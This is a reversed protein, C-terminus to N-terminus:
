DFLRAGRRLATASLDAMRAQIAERARLRLLEGLRGAPCRELREGLAHFDHHLGLAEGLSKIQPLQKGAEPQLPALLACQYGYYKVQKRWDHLAASTGASRAARLGRRCDRRSAALWQHLQAADAAIDCGAIYIMVTSLLPEARAAGLADADDAPRLTELTSDLARFESLALRRGRLLRQLTQRAVDADRRASLGRGADRLLTDILRFQRGLPRRLLRLWARLKKISKRTEHVDDASAGRVRQLTQGLETTAAARLADHLPLAPDLVFAM